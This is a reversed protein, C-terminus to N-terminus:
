EVGATEARARTSSVHSTTVASTSPADCGLPSLPWGKDVNFAGLGGTVPGRPIV